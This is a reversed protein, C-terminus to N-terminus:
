SAFPDEDVNEKAAMDRYIRRIDAAYHERLNKLKPNPGTNYMGVTDWSRGYHTFFGNLVWAGAAICVCPENLLRQRTIGFRKLEGYHSSNIGMMCVDETHNRNASNVVANYLHSEKHAIARLLLPQIHFREGVVRFCDASALPSIFLLFAFCHRLFNVQV